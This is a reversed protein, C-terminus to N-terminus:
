PHVGLCSPFVRLAPLIEPVQVHVSGQHLRTDCRENVHCVLQPLPLDIQLDSPYWAVEVRYLRVDFSILRSETHGPIVWRPSFDVQIKVVAAAILANSCLNNCLHFCDCLSMWMQVAGPRRCRRDRCLPINSQASHRCIVTRSDDM